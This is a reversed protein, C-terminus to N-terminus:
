PRWGRRDRSRAPRAHRQAVGVLPRRAGRPRGSTPAPPRSRLGRQRQQRAQLARVALVRPGAPHDREVPVGRGLARGVVERQRGREPADVELELHEVLGGLLELLELHPRGVHRHDVREQAGHELAAALRAVANSPTGGPARPEAVGEVPRMAAVDAAAVAGVQCSRHGCHWRQFVSRGDAADSLRASERRPPRRGRDRRERRQAGSQAEVRPPAAARDGTRPTSPLRDRAERRGSRDSRGASPRREIRRRGPDDRRALQLASRAAGIRGPPVPRSRPASYPPTTRSAIWASLNRPLRASARGRAASSRALLPRRASSSTSASTGTGRPRGRSRSRPKM